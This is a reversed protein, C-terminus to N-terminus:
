KMTGKKFENNNADAEQSFCDWSRSAATEVSNEANFMSMLRCVERRAEDREETLRKIKEKLETTDMRREWLEEFVKEASAADEDRVKKLHVIEALAADREDVVRWLSDTKRKDNEREIMQLVRYHRKVVISTAWGEMVHCNTFFGAVPDFVKVCDDDGVVICRHYTPEHGSFAVVFPSIIEESM